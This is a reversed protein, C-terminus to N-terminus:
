SMMSCQLLNSSVPSYTLSNDKIEEGYVSINSIFLTNAANLELVVKSGVKYINDLRYDEKAGDKGLINKVVLNDNRDMILLNFNTLNGSKTDTLEKGNTITIEKIYINRGLDLELKPVTQGTSEVEVIDTPVGNIAKYGNDNNNSLTVTGQRAWDISSSQGFRDLIEFSVSSFAHGLHCYDSTTIGCVYMNISKSNVEKYKKSYSDYIQIM